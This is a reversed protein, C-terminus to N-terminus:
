LLEQYLKAYKRNDKINEEIQAIDAVRESKTEESLSKLMSEAMDAKRNLKAVELRIESKEM